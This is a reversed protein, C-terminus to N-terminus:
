VEMRQKQKRHSFIHGMFAWSWMRHKKRGLTVKYVDTYGQPYIGLVMTPYGEANYVYDGVKLSGFRRFGSPTPIVQEVWELKGAGANALLVKVEKGEFM